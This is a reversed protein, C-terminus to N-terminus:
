EILRAIRLFNEFLIRTHERYTAGKASWVRELREPADSTNLTERIEQAFAPYRLITELYGPPDDWVHQLAPVRRM